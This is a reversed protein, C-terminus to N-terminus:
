RRSWTRSGRGLNGLDWGFVEEWQRSGEDGAERNQHLTSASPHGSQGRALAGRFTRSGTVFPDHANDNPDGVRYRAATLNHNVVVADGPALDARDIATVDALATV